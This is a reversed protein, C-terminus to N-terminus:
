RASFSLYNSTLATKNNQPKDAYIQSIQPICQPKTQASQKLVRAHINERLYRLNRLPICTPCIFCVVIVATRVSIDQLHSFFLDCSPLLMSCVLFSLFVLIFSILSKFVHGKLSFIPIIKSYFIIYRDSM